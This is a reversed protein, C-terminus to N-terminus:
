RNLKSNLMSATPKEIAIVLIDAAATAGVPGFTGPPRFNVNGSPSTPAASIDEQNHRAM